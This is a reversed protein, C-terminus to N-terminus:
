KKFLKFGKKDFCNLYLKEAITKKNINKDEFIPLLIRKVIYSKQYRYCNEGFISNQCGTCLKTSKDIHIEKSM